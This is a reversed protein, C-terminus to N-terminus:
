VQASKLLINRNKGNIVAMYQNKKFLKFRKKLNLLRSTYAFDPTTIIIERNPGSLLNINPLKDIIRSLEGKNKWGNAGMISGVIKIRKGNWPQTYEQKIEEATKGLLILLNDNTENNNDSSHVLYGGGTWQRYNYKDRMANANSHENPHRTDTIMNPHNDYCIILTFEGTGCEKEKKGGSPLRKGYFRSLNNAFEKKPWKIDFIQLLEYKSKIDNLIKDELKRGNEWILFIQLMKEMKRRM